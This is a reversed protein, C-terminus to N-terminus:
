KRTDKMDKKYGNNNLDNLSTTSFSVVMLPKLTKVPTVVKRINPLEYKIKLSETSTLNTSSSSANINSNSIPKIDALLFGFRHKAPQIGLKFVSKPESSTKEIKVSPSPPIYEVKKDSEDFSSSSRKFYLQSSSSKSLDSSKLDELSLSTPCFQALRRTVMLNDIHSEHDDFEFRHKMNRCEVFSDTLLFAARNSLYSWNKFSHDSIERNEFIKM